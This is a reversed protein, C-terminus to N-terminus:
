PLSVGVWGCAMSFAISRGLGSAGDDRDTDDYELLRARPLSGTVIAPYVTQGKILGPIAPGDMM